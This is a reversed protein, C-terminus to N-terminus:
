MRAVIKQWAGEAESNNGKVIYLPERSRSTVRREERLDLLLEWLRDVSFSRQARRDEFVTDGSSALLM